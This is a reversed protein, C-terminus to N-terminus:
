MSWYQETHPNCCASTGLPVLTTGAEPNGPMRGRRCPQGRDNLELDYKEGFTDMVLVNVEECGPTIENCDLYKSLCTSSAKKGSNTDFTNRCWRTIKSRLIAEAEFRNFGRKALIRVVNAWSNFMPASYADKTENALKKPDFNYTSNM